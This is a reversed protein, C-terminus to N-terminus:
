RCFEYDPVDFRIFRAVSDAVGNFAKMVLHGGFMEEVHGNVHGLYDQQQMFYKQSQRVVLLIIIMSLPIVLLAVLTMLWNISFMMVLVGVVTVVSTIIQSLSQNLTQSVTDVDNTIRSLVEGHPTSDFYRFPMLNIKDAIDKRFRYTIEMSIKSMIWGQIFSFMASSLYLMLTILLIRGIYEFDIGSGTGSIQGMVGEFLKTTANGLMKPGLINFVTSAIAFILVIVITIKYAGLYQLLKRMTGKFDRAREGKMMAMPGHRGMFSGTLRPNQQTERRNNNM